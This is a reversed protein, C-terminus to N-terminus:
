TCLVRRARSSSRRQSKCGPDPSIENEHNSAILIPRRPLLPVPMPRRHDYACESENNAWRWPRTRLHHETTNPSTPHATLHRASRFCHWRESFLDHLLGAWVVGLRELLLSLGVPRPRSQPWADLVCERGSKMAVISKDAEHGSWYPLDIAEAIM